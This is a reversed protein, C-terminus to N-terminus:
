IYSKEEIFRSGVLQNIEKKIRAREDNQRYVSRALEVFRPGFDQRKEHSRIDDEIDWLTRNIAGLREALAHLQPGNPVRADRVAALAELEAVVNARKVPESIREAKIELITIKDILEGISVPVQVEVGIPVQSAETM